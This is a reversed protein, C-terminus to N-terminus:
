KTKPATPQPKRIVWMRGMFARTHKSYQNEIVAFGSKLLQACLGSPKGTKNKTTGIATIYCQLGNGKKYDSTDIETNHLTALYVVDFAMYGNPMIAYHNKAMHTVFEDKNEATPTATTPKQAHNSYQTVVSAFLDSGSVTVNASGSKIPTGFLDSNYLAKDPQSKDTITANTDPAVAGKHAQAGKHKHKNKGM